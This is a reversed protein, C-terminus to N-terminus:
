HTQFIDIVRWNHFRVEQIINFALVSGNGPLSSFITVDGHTVPSLLLSILKAKRSIPILDREYKLSLESMSLAKLLLHFMNQESETGLDQHEIHM